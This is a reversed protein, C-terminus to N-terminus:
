RVVKKGAYKELLEAQDPLIEGTYLMQAFMRGTLEGTDLDFGEM